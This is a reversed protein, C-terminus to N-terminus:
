SWFMGTLGIFGALRFQDFGTLSPLFSEGLLM